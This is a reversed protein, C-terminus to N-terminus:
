SISNLLRNIQHYIVHYIELVREIHESFSFSLHSACSVILYGRYLSIAIKIPMM